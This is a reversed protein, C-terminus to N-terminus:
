PRRAPYVCRFGTWPDVGAAAGGFRLAARTGGAASRWSGGAITHLPAEKEACSPSHLAQSLWCDDSYARHSDRTWEAMNGGLGVVGQPTVDVSAWPEADVAVPGGARKGTLCEGSGQDNDSPSRGFVAQECDPSAEGWPYTTELERGAASAIYEREAVTPLDGGDLQCLARASLWSVCSLPMDEREPYFLSGDLKENWTCAKYFDAADFQEPNNSPGADPPDFGRARAARYRGVTYEYRDVFLSPMVAMREPRGADAGRAIVTSDGLLFAGGDVCVRADHRAPHEAPSSAGCGVERYGNWSGALSSTSRTRGPEVAQPVVARLVGETDVCSRQGALDAM